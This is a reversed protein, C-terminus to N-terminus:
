LYELGALDEFLGGPLTTLTNNNLYRQTDSSFAVLPSSPVIHLSFGKCCNMSLHLVLGACESACIFSAFTSLDVFDSGNASSSFTTPQERLWRPLMLPLACTTVLDGESDMGYASQM